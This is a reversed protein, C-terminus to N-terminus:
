AISHQIFELVPGPIIGLLFTLAAAVAVAVTGLGETEVIATADGEPESFFMTQVLRFYFFATAASALVAIVVLVTQGSAVGVRFVEFKGIFGATLPIGAFSLLFIMMAAATLPARKGLGRWADFHTAEGLVNGEVDKARVITVIGFVGVTAIGYALLYFLISSLGQQYEDFRFQSSRLANVAILIFGAHAISSYALMRKVDTQTLGILTGVIITLIIIGWLFINLNAAQPQLVYMYLRALAIFAAAKTGAAMFGTIPTPAGQYVDPTWSHFPAAGVKFLLGIALMVAGVAALLTQAPFRSQMVVISTYSVSGTAGYLLAAGMLFIASSFAGMLFYKMAAEQSLLRRRRAMATLVYLPLSIVELAIFLTLLDYAATFVMMGGVCFLALPFIESHCREADTSEQEAFSGPRTAASAVFAGDRLETRDAIVLFALLAIILIVGQGIISLADEVMAIGEATKSHAIASIAVQRIAGGEQVGASWRWVVAVLASAVAILSWAVQVPRRISRGLFAEFLTSIVAAGFIIVFPVIAAWNIMPLSTM